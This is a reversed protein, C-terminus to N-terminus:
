KKQKAGKSALKNLPELIKDIDLLIKISSDTKVLALIFGAELGSSHEPLSEIDKATVDYVESVQDVIVGVQYKESDNQIEIVIIRSSKDYETKPMNLKLRLDVVPVVKGRLNIVGKVYKPVNPM